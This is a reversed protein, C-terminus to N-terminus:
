RCAAPRTISEFFPPLAPVCRPSFSLTSAADRLTPCCSRLLRVYLSYIARTTSSESAFSTLVAFDVTICPLFTPSMGVLPVPSFFPITRIAKNPCDYRRTPRNSYVNACSIFSLERRSHVFNRSQCLFSVNCFRSM